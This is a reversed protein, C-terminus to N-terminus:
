DNSVSGVTIYITANNLLFYAIEGYVFPGNVHTLYQQFVDAYVYNNVCTISYVIEGDFQDEINEYSVNKTSAFRYPINKYVPAGMAVYKGQDRESEMSISVNILFGGFDGALCKNSTIVVDQSRDIHQSILYDRFNQKVGNIFVNEIQHGNEEFVIVDDDEPKFPSFVHVEAYKETSLGIHMVVGENTYSMGNKGFFVLSADNKEYESYSSVVSIWGCVPRNAFNSYETCNITYEKVVDSFFPMMLVSFGNEFADDYINPITSADYVELKVDAVIDTLNHVFIQDRSCGPAKGSEIFRATTGAIWNGKSLQSLLAADGALLLTDGKEIMTNVEEVAFLGQIM